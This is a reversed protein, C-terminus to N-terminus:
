NEFIKVLHSKNCPSLTIPCTSHSILHNQICKYCFVFGSVTLLTANRREKKCLPCLRPNTPIELGGPTREPQSPPPPIIINGKTLLSSENNFYWEFFKFLFAIALLLHTSYDSISYLFKIIYGFLSGFLNGGLKKFSEILNNRKINMASLHQVHESPSLRKLCLGILYMFPNHYKFDRKLLYLFMFFFHSGEYATSIYPWLKMFYTRVIKSFRHYGMNSSEEQLMESPIISNDLETSNRIDSLAHERRLDVYLNELKDKIYPVFVLYALSQARQKSTLFSPKSQNDPTFQNADVRKLGFLHEAFSSDFNSLFHREIVLQLIGFLEDYYKLINLYRFNRQAAMSLIYRLASKLGSIMREQTMIEFFTPQFM